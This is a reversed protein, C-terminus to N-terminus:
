EIIGALHLNKSTEGLRGLACLVDKEATLLKKFGRFSNRSIRLGRAADKRSLFLTRPMGNEFGTIVKNHIIIKINSEKDIAILAESGACFREVIEKPIELDFIAKLRPDEKEVILYQKHKLPSDPAVEEYCRVLEEGAANILPVCPGLDGGTSTFPPRTTSLAGIFAGHDLLLKMDTFQPKYKNHCKVIIGNSAKFEHSPMKSTSHCTCRTRM